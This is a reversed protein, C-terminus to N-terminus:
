VTPVPAQIARSVAARLEELNFPKHLVAAAGLFRALPLLDMLGHFSGGGSMAIFRAGALETRLRRLVDLGGQEPMFLDCLILDAGLRRFVRVAEAGNAAEEYKFGSKGLMARVLERVKADDDVVLVRLM